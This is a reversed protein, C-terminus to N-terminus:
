WNVLKPLGSARVSKLTPFADYILYLPPWTSRSSSGQPFLMIPYPGGNGTVRGVGGCCAPRCQATRRLPALESWLTKMSISLLGQEALWANTMGVGSAITKSMHWYGKRTRAHRIAQRIPVGLRILERRSKRPGM